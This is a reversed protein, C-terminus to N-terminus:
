IYVCSVPSLLVGEGLQRPLLFSLRHLFDCLTLPLRLASHPHQLPTLPKLPRQHPLPLPHTIHCCALPQRPHRHSLHRPLPLPRSGGTPPTSPSGPGRSHLERQVVVVVVVFLFFHRINTPRDGLDPNVCAFLVTVYSLRAVHVSTHVPYRLPTGHRQPM